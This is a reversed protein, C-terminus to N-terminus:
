CEHQLKCSSSDDHRGGLSILSRGGLNVNDGTLKGPRCNWANRPITMDQQIVDFCSMVVLLSYAQQLYFMICFSKEMKNFM